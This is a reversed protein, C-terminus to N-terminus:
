GGTNFVIRLNYECLAFLLLIMEKIDNRYMFANTSTATTSQVQKKDVRKQERALIANAITFLHSLTDQRCINTNKIKQVGSSLKLLERTEDM